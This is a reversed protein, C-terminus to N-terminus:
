SCRTQSTLQESIANFLESLEQNQGYESLAKDLRLTWSGYAEGPSNWEGTKLLVDLINMIVYNAPSQILNHILKKQIYNVSKAEPNDASLGALQLLMNYEHWGDHSNCNNITNEIRSRLAPHDHSGFYAVKQPPLNESKVFNPRGWEREMSIFTMGPINLDSMVERVYGPVEAGADEAIILGSVKNSAHMLKSLFLKGLEANFAWEEPSQGTHPYFGPLSGNTRNLIDEDSLNIFEHDQEPEWPFAHVRFAGLPHDIRQDHTYETMKSIRTQWWSFDQNIHEQWNYPRPGWNQGFRQIFSNGQFWPEPPAGISKDMIFLGQNAYVDVSNVSVGFPVDGVMRVNHQNAYEKVSRWERDAFWQRYTYFGKLFQGESLSELIRSAGEPSSLEKKWERWKTNENQFDVITRYTGYQELWSDHEQEQYEIFDKARSSKQRIDTRIFNKYAELHLRFLLPRVINYNIRDSGPGSGSFRKLCYKELTDNKLGPVAKPTPEILLPDLAISSLPLYPCNDGATENIPLIQILNFKQRACFEIAERVGGTNGIGADNEQRLGFVPILLGARRELDPQRTHNLSVDSPLQIGDRFSDFHPVAFM